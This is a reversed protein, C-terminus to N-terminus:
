LRDADGGTVQTKPLDGDVKAAAVSTENLDALATKVSEITGADKGYETLHDVGEDLDVTGESMGIALAITECVTDTDDLMLVREPFHRNWFEQIEPDRGHGANTPIIFFVEFKEKLEAVIDELPIDAELGDGIHNNVADKSVDRALEDGIMFLYGKKGRKELCDMETHRAMFYMSLEYSERKQGGGGGELVLQGLQEDSRNDSEWQSIQIPVKDCTEDGIGGFMVQPHEVYGKRLLLGFLDALKAQLARPIRHMSGTVDFLVTVALSTPHEDSDRSERLAVGNIDLQEHPKWQDRPTHALTDDHYGFSSKGAAALNASRTTYAATSWTGGGM